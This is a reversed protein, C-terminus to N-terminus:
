RMIVQMTGDSQVQQGSQGPSRSLETPMVYQPAQDPLGTETCCVSGYAHYDATHRAMQCVSCPPCWFSTCCDACCSGPINYLDRVYMRTRTLLYLTFLFIVFGLLQRGDNATFENSGATKDDPQTNNHNNFIEEWDKPYFFPQDISKIVQKSISNAFVYVLWFIAIVKFASCPTKRGLLPVGCANLEVRTMVQGLVLPTCWCALCCM